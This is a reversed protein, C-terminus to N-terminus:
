KEYPFSVLKCTEFSNGNSTQELAKVCSRQASDHFM